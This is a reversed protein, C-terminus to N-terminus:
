QELRTRFGSAEIAQLYDLDVLQEARLSAAAPAQAVTAEIV